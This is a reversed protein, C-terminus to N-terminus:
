VIGTLVKCELCIFGVGIYMYLSLSIFVTSHNYLDSNRIIRRVLEFELLGIITFVAGFQIGLHCSVISGPHKINRSM